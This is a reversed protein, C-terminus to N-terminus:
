RWRNMLQGFFNVSKQRTAYNEMPVYEPPAAHGAEPIAPINGNAAAAVSAENSRWGDLGPTWVLDLERAVETVIATTISAAQLAFGNRLASDCLTNVLRPIGGSYEHIKQVVAESFLTQRPLGAQALRHDIYEKVEAPSLPNLHYRCSVRQKLQRLEPRQLLGNLEPQGAIIIQLLKERPTELNLLLRVEELLEPSLCHGEDVILVSPRGDSRNRLLTEELAPLQRSKSPACNIGFKLMLFDLLEERTLIPNTCMVTVFRRKSLM